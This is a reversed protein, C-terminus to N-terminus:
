HQGVGAALQMHAMYAVVGDVVHHRALQAHLTVVHQHRHAPVCKAHRSFVCGNGVVHRGLLPCTGVDCFHLRLKLWQAQRKVPRAFYGGAVWAVVLPVLPHKQFHQFFANGVAFGLDDVPVRNVLSHQRVLLHNVPAAPATASKNFLPLNRAVVQADGVVSFLQQVVRQGLQWAPGLSHAHHLFVPNTFRFAHTKGKLMVDLVSKAIQNLVPFHKDESRASVGDHAHCKDSHSGLM